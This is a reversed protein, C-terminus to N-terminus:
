GRPGETTSALDLGTLLHRAADKVSKALARMEGEIRAELEATVRPLLTDTNMAATLPLDIDEGPAPIEGKGIQLLLAAGVLFLVLAAALAPATM